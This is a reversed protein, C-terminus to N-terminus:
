TIERIKSICLRIFDDTKDDNYFPDLHTGRLENAITPYLLNMLNFAVQGKRQLPWKKIYEELLVYFESYNM